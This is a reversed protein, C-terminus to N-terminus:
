SVFRRRVLGVFGVLGTGFLALSEPEPVPSVSITEDSTKTIISGDFGFLDYNYGKTQDDNEALNIYDGNQLQYSLGKNDFFADGGMNDTTDFGAPSTLLNDNGPQGGFLGVPFTGPDAVGTIKQGATYGSIDMVQYIAVGDASYNGTATADLTGYGYIPDNPGGFTFTFQDALASTCPLAALALGCLLRSAVNM